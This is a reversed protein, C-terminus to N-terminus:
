EHYDGIGVIEISRVQTWDLGGDPKRPPPDDAPKFVLRDPHVLDVAIM